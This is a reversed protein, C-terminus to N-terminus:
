LERVKKVIQYEGIEENFRTEDDITDPYEREIFEILFEHASSFCPFEKGQFVDNGIWDQILFYREM